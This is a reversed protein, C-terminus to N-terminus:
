LCMVNVGLQRIAAAAAAHVTSPSARCSCCKEEGAIVLRAARCVARIYQRLRRRGVAGHQHRILLWQGRVDKVCQACVVLEAM